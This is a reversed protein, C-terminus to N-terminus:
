IIQVSKKLIVKFSLLSTKYEGWEAFSWLHDTATGSSDSYIHSSDEGASGTNGPLFLEWRGVRKEEAESWLKHCKCEAPVSPWRYIFIKDNSKVKEACHKWVLCACTLISVLTRPWWSPLLLNHSFTNWTVINDPCMKWKIHGVFTLDSQFYHWHHTLKCYFAHNLLHCFRMSM